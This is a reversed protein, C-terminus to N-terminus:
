DGTVYVRREEVYEWELAWNHLFIDDINEEMPDM